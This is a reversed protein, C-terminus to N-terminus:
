FSVMTVIQATTGDLFPISDLLTWADNEPNYLAIKGQESFITNGVTHLWLDDDSLYIEPIQKPTSWTDSGPDYKSIMGYGLIAMNHLTCSWTAAYDIPRGARIYQSSPPPGQVFNYFGDRFTTYRGSSDILVNDNIQKLNYTTSGYPIYGYKVDRVDFMNLEQIWTICQQTNDDIRIYISKDLVGCTETLFGIGNAAQVNEPDGISSWTNSVPDYQIMNRGDSVMRDISIASPFGEDIESMFPDIQGKYTWLNTYPSYMYYYGEITLAMVTKKTIIDTCPKSLDCMSLVLTGDCIGVPVDNKTVPIPSTIYTSKNLLMFLILVGIIMMYENKM